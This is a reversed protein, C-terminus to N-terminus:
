DCEIVRRGSPGLIHIHKTKVDYEARQGDLTGGHFSLTLSKADFDYTGRKGDSDTYTGNGTITFPLAEELHDILFFTCHYNKAPVEGDAQVSSSSLALAITVLASAVLFSNRTRNTKM